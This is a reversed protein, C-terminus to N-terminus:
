KSPESLLDLFDQKGQDIRQATRDIWNNLLHYAIFAIVGVFLGAMSTVMKEYLGGSIAKISIDGSNSIEWFIKIVGGITGIFGLMPAIRSTLSIFHMNKELRSIEHDGALEMAVEVDRMPKGIRSVGKEVVRAVPSNTARCLNRAADVNGHLVNDRIGAMFNGSSKSSRGIVVLREIAFYVAVVLLIAIPIMVWGGKMLMDFLHFEITTPQTAVQKTQDVIGTAPKTVSDTAAAGVQLLVHHLM